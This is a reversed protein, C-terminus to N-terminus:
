HRGKKCHRSCLGQTILEREEQPLNGVMDGEATGANIYTRKNERRINFEKEEMIRNRTWERSDLVYISINM